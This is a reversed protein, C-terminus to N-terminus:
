FLLAASLPEELPRALNLRLARDRQRKLFLYVNVSSEFHKDNDKTEAVM